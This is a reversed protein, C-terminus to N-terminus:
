RNIMVCVDLRTLHLIVGWPNIIAFNWPRLMQVLFLNKQGIKGLFRMIQLDGDIQCLFPRAV